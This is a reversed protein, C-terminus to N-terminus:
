VVITDPTEAGPTQATTLRRTDRAGPTRATTHRQTQHRKCRLPARSPAVLTEQAARTSTRPTERTVELLRQTQHLQCRIAAGSLAAFTERVRHHKEQQLVDPTESCGLRCNYRTEGASSSQAPTPRRTDREGPPGPLLKVYGPYM